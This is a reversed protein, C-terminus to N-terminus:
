KKLEYSAYGHKILVYHWDQMRVQRIGHDKMRIGEKEYCKLTYGLRVQIEISSPCEMRRVHGITRHSEGMKGARVATSSSPRHNLWSRYGYLLGYRDCGSM